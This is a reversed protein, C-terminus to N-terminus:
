DFDYQYVVKKIKEVINDKTDGNGIKYHVARDDVIANYFIKKDGMFYGDDFSKNFKHYKVNNKDLWKVMNPTYQRTTFITINFGQNYLENIADIMVENPEGFVDFGKWGEYKSLVGDFDFAIWKHEHPIMM